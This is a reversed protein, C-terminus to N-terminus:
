RDFVNNTFVTGNQLGGWSDSVVLQDAANPGIYITNNYIHTNTVPGSIHFTHDGDNVSLNYRIITGINGINDPMQEGGNDCVLM